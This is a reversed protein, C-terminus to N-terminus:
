PTEAERQAKRLTEWEDLFYHTNNRCDDKNDYLYGFRVGRNRDGWGVDVWVLKGGKEQYIGYETGDKHPLIDLPFVRIVRDGGMTSQLYYYEGERLEPDPEGPLYAEIMQKEKETM